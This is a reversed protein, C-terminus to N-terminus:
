DVARAYRYYAACTGESSVMTAGLPRDPTCRAGFAPCDVPKKMGLLIEGSICESSDASKRDDFTYHLEADRHKHQPTLRLGSNEVSGIGRWVRQCPEFVSDVISRAAINGARTVARSYQIEVEARKSELQEVTLCIGELIDIPEFGSIVIPIRFEEALAEYQASGMVTCVHGPGLFGDLSAEPKRLISAMIPPVLVHSVLVFFNDINLANAQSVAMANAPATTEFGIAFFVVKRTPNQRAITLCDMPSYVVRVDSGMAKVALLDKTSGPVRLMDGFSCFITDPSSAIAIARDIMSIPTVCVPCGPGHVLELEPPLLDQIGYQMITHTQGGCVEMIKWRRSVTKKLRERLRQAVMHDRYENLFKM